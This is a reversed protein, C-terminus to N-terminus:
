RAAAQMVRPRMDVLSISLAVELVLVGGTEGLPDRVDLGDNVTGFRGIAGLHGRAEDAVGSGHYVPSPAPSISDVSATNSMFQGTLPRPRKPAISATSPRLQPQIPNQIAGARTRSM